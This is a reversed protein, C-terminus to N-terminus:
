APQKISTLMQSSIIKGKKNREESKVLGVNPAYWETVYVMESVLMMVSKVAYSVKLCHYAGAPTDITEYGEYKGDKLTCTMKVFMVKLSFNCEPFTEGQKANTKLPISLSGEVQIQKQLKQLKKESQADKKKHLEAAVAQQIQAKMAEGSMLIIRTLDPNEYVFLISQVSDHTIAELSKDYNLQKILTYKEKNYIGAIYSSDTKSTEKEMDVTKYYLKTGKQMNCFQAKVPHICVAFLFIFSLLLKTM